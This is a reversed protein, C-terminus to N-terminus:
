RVIGELAAACRDIAEPQYISGQAVDGFPVNFEGRKNERYLGNFGARNLQLRLLATGNAPLSLKQTTIRLSFDPQGTPIVRLRYLFHSGGRGYLDSVSLQIQKVEKPVNYVFAPDRSGPRDDQVTKVVGNLKVALRADLPSDISRADIRLSLPQGPTVDLLYVDEENPQSIRGNIVLPVQKNEAFRADVLQLKGEGAATEVVEVADSFMLPPAAPRPTPGPPLSILGSRGIESGSLKAVVATAPPIETGVPTVTGGAARAVAPPFYTDVFQLDGLVLRFANQGPAKYSLDHLEAYYLGDAPLKVVARTDGKLFVKGWEITLPTGRETKIELVPDLRAGIRRAEVDAM